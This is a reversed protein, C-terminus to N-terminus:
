VAVELYVNNNEALNYFIDLEQEIIFGFYKKQQVTLKEQISLITDDLKLLCSFFKCCETYRYVYLLCEAFLLYNTYDEFSADNLPKWNDSYETYIRKRVEFSKTYARIRDIIQESYKKCKLEERMELLNKRVPNCLSDCIISSNKSSLSDIYNQRSKLYEKLFSLGAYESYMYDQKQYLNNQTIYKYLM